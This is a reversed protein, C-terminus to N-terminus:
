KEGPRIDVEFYTRYFGTDFTLLADADEAAHAGILFDPALHQRPAVTRGCAPCSVEFQEGCEPCQLQEDRRALYTAFADGAVAMASRSPQTVDIGTDALFADVADHDTFGDDGALEAYVVSNVVVAGERYAEQLAERADDSHPDDEYLYAFLASSDAVTKV